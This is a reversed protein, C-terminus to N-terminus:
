AVGNLAQKIQNAVVDMQVVNQPTVGVITKFKFGTVFQGKDQYNPGVVFLKTKKQDGVLQRIQPLIRTAWQWDQDFCLIVLTDARSIEGQLNVLRIQGTQDQDAIICSRDTGSLTDIITNQFGEYPQGPRANSCV